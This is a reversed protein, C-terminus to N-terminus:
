ECWETVYADARIDTGAATSTLRYEITQSSSTPLVKYGNVVSRTTSQQPAVGEIMLTTAGVTRMQLLVEDTGSVNQLTWQLGILRCHPPIPPSADIATWTKANGNSLVGYPNQYLYRGRAMEFALLARGSDTKVAGLYVYDTSGSKYRRYVDPATISYVYDVSGANLFLYLYLWTSVPYAGPAGEMKAVGVTAAASIQAVKWQGGETLIVSGIPEVIVDTGNTSRMARTDHKGFLGTRAFKTRSALTLFPGNVSAATAPDGDAPATVTDTGPYEVVPTLTAPM